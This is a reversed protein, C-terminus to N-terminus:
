HDEPPKNYTTTFSTRRVPQGPIRLERSVTIRFDRGPVPRREGTIASVSRGDDHGYIAVTLSTKGAKMRVVVPSGTDNTWALDLGPYNVTAERGAPYRSIYFSHAKHADLQLGAFFAANLTTTAVQSVGGGIDESLEGDLIFPASVYGKARTRQGVIGNISFQQGPGIVTGDLTRAMTAINRVRPQCCSYPTTFSGLLADVTKASEETVTPPTVVPELRLRRAGAAALDAPGRVLAVLASEVRAKSVKQGARGPEVFRTVAPQPKWTVDGQATLVTAPEPAAIVPEVADASLADAAPRAVEDGFTDDVGLSVTTGEVVLRLHPGLARPTVRTERKGALLELPEAVLERAREGAAAVAETSVAPNTTVVELAATAEGALGGGLLMLAQEVTEPSVQQGPRPLATVVTGGKWSIRGDFVPVETARVVKSVAAALVADDRVLVPAVRDGRRQKLPGWGRQSQAEDMARAVTAAVDVRVGLEDRRLTASRTGARLTVPDPLAALTQELRATLAQEDLGAAQLPGISTGAATVRPGERLVALGVAGGAVTVTLASGLILRSVALM